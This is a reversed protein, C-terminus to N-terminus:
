ENDQEKEKRLKLLEQVFSTNYKDGYLEESNVEEAESYEEDQLISKDSEEVPEDADIEHEGKILLTGQALGLMNGIETQVQNGTTPLSTEFEYIYVEYGKFSPFDRPTSQLITKKAAGLGNSDYKMLHKEIRDCQKDSLEHITKIKFIWTTKTETLYQTFSKM